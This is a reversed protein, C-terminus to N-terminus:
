LRDAPLGVPLRPSFPPARGGDLNHSGRGVCLAPGRGFMGQAEKQTRTGSPARLSHHPPACAPHRPRAAARPRARAPRQGLAAAPPSLRQLPRPPLPAPLPCCRSRGPGSGSGKSTPSRPCWLSPPPPVASTTPVCNSVSGKERGGRETEMGRGTGM